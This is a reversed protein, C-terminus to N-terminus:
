LSSENTILGSGIRRSQVIHLVAHKRCYIQVSLWFCTLMALTIVADRIRVHGVM